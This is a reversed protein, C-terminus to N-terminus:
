RWFKIRKWIDLVPKWNRRRFGPSCASRPIWVKRLKSFYRWMQGVYCTRPLVRYGFENANRGCFMCINVCTHIFVFLRLVIWTLTQWWILEAFTLNHKLIFLLNQSNGLQPYPVISWYIWMSFVTCGKLSFWIHSEALASSPSAMVCRLVFFACLLVVWMPLMENHAYLNSSALYLCGQKDPVWVWRENGVVRQLSKM